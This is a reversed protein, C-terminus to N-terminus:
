KKSQATYWRTVLVKQNENPFRLYAITTDYLDQILFIRARVVSDHLVLESSEWLSSTAHNDGRNEPQNDFAAHLINTSHWWRCVSSSGIEATPQWGATVKCNLRWDYMHATIM